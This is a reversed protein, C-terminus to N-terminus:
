QRSGGRRGEDEDDEDDDDDDDDDDDNRKGVFCGVDDLDGQRSNFAGISGAFILLLVPSLLARSSPPMKRTSRGASARCPRGELRSGEDCGERYRQFFLFSFSHTGPQQQEMSRKEDELGLLPIKM